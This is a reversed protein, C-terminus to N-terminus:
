FLIIYEGSDGCLETTLFLVHSYINGTLTESIALWIGIGTVFTVIPTVRDEILGEFAEFCVCWLCLM